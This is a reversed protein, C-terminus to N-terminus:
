DLVENEKVNEESWHNNNINKMLYSKKLLQM